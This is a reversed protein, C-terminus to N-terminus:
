VKLRAFSDHDNVAAAARKIMEVNSERDMMGGIALTVVMAEFPYVLHQRYRQLVKADDLERVGAATLHACYRRLLCQEHERRVDPELATALFYAVDGLGEGMRVLQWDLFGPETATWFLNGPHCDYHVLTQPGDALLRKVGRRNAAYRTAPKHLRGDIWDAARRLGRTMLPVALLSGM